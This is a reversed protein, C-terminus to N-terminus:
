TRNIKKKLETLDHGKAGLERASEIDYAHGELEMFNSSVAGFIDKSHNLNWQKKKMRM